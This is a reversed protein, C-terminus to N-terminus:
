TLNESSHFSLSILVLYINQVYVSVGGILLYFDWNDTRLTKGENEIPITMSTFTSSALIVVTLLTSLITSIKLMNNSNIKAKINKSLPFPDFRRSTFAILKNIIIEIRSTVDYKKLLIQLVLALILTVMITQVFGGRQIDTFQTLLFSMTLLLAITTILFITFLEICTYVITLYKINSFTSFISIEIIFMFFLYLIFIFIFGFIQLLYEGTVSIVGKELFITLALIGITFYLWVKTYMRIENEINM